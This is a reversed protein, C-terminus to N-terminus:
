PISDGRFGPRKLGAPGCINPRDNLPSQAQVDDGLLVAIDARFLCTPSNAGM